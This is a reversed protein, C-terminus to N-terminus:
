RATPLTSCYRLADGAAQVASGVHRPDQDGAQRLSVVLLAASGEPGWRRSTAMLEYVSGSGNATPLRKWIPLRRFSPRGGALYTVALTLFTESDLYIIGNAGGGTGEPPIGELVYAQRIQFAVRSFTTSERELGAGSADCRCMRLGAAYRDAQVQCIPSKASLLRLPVDVAM